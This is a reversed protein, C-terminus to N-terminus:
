GDARFGAVVAYIAAVPLAFAVLVLLVWLVPKELVPPHFASMRDVLSGLREIVSGSDRSLFRLSLDPAVETGDVRAVPRSATRPEHTALLDVSRHGRNAVCFTTLLSRNPPTLPVRFVQRWTYGGPISSAARYGPGSTSVRLAPGARRADAVTFEAVQSDVDMAVNDQCVQQGPKLRINEEVAFPTPVAVGAVNEREKTLYPVFVKAAAFALVLLAAGLALLYTRSRRRM